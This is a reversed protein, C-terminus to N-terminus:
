KVQLNEQLFKQVNKESSMWKAGITKDSLYMGILKGVDEGSEVALSQCGVRLIYGSTLTDVSINYGSSYSTDGIVAGAPEDWGRSDAIAESMDAEQGYVDFHSEESVKRESLAEALSSSGLRSALRSESQTESQAESNSSMIKNLLNSM